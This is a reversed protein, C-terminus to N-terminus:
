KKDDQKTLEPLENIPLKEGTDLEDDWNNVAALYFLFPSIPPLLWALNQIYFVSLTQWVLLTAYLRWVKLFFGGEQGKSCVRGLM